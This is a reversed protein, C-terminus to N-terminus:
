TNILAKLCNAKMKLFIRIKLGKQTLSLRNSKKEGIKEKSFINRIKDILQEYKLIWQIGAMKQIM